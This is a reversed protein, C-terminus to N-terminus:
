GTIKRLTNFNLMKLISICPILEHHFTTHKVQLVQKTM